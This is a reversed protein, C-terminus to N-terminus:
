KGTIAPDREPAGAQPPLYGSYTLIREVQLSKLFLIRAAARVEINEPMWIGDAVRTQEVTIRSGPLIRALFLGMSFPQIVQADVKIWAFDRKDVWLRGSVKSFM